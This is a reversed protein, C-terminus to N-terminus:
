LIEALKKPSKNLIKQTLNGTGPGIEIVIDQSTVKGCDVIKTLLADNSLFNQGLNKKILM